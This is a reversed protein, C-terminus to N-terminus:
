TQLTHTIKEEKVHHDVAGPGNKFLSNKKGMSNGKNFGLEEYIHTDLESCYKIGNIGINIRKYISCQRFHSFTSFM